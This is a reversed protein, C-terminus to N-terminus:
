RKKKLKDIFGGAREKAAATEGPDAELTLTLVDGERCAEPLLSVPVRIIGYPDDQTLLVAVGKEIRDISVKM